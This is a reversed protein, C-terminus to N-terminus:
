RNYRFIRKRSFYVSPKVLKLILRSITKLEKDNKDSKVEIVDNTKNVPDEEPNGGNVAADKDDVAM